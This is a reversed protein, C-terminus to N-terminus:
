YWNDQKSQLSCNSNSVFQGNSTDRCRYQASGPLYDWAAAYSCYAGRCSSGSTGSSGGGQGAAYIVAVVGVIAVPLMISNFVSFEEGHSLDEEGTYINHSTTCGSTALALTIIAIITKKILM